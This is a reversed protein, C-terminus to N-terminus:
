YSVSSPPVFLPAEAQSSQSNTFNKLITLKKFAGLENTEDSCSGRKTNM